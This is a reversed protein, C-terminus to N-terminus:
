GGLRQSGILSLLQEAGQGLRNPQLHHLGKLVTLAADTVEGAIQIQGLRFQREMELHELVSPQDQGALLAAPDVVAQLGGRQQRQAVPKM